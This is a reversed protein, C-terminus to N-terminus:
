QLKITISINNNCLVKADEFSPPGMFGKANNSFGYSEKPIGMMNTDLEENLNADHYVSVAYEGKPLGEFKTQVNGKDTIKVKAYRM